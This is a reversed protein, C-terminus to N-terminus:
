YQFLKAIEYVPDGTTPLDLVPSRLSRALSRLKQDHADCIVDFRDQLEPSGGQLKVEGLQNAIHYVGSKDPLKREFPDHIYGLVVDSYGKLRFFESESKKDLGRYDSFFFLLSGPQLHRRMMDMGSLLTPSLDSEDISDRRAKHCLQRLMMMVSKRGRGSKILRRQKEDFVLGGVREGHFYAKWAIIAAATAAIVRKFRGRTAFHMPARDDVCIFVPREREERFIKTFAEGRRATARSDLYRIDDGPQYLRSEDYEMGRGKVLSLYQGGQTARISQMWSPLRRAIGALQLLESPTAATLDRSTNASLRPM